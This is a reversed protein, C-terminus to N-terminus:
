AYGLRRLEDGCIQEIDTVQATSLTHRWRGPPTAKPIAQVPLDLFESLARATGGPDRAMEEYRVTKLQEQPMSHRLRAALRIAWRWRLACKGADSLTPWVDRENEDEVGFFPHPCEEDLNVFSPRFWALISPDALMATVVDRGDRIVQVIQADPFAEVLTDACYALDASADGYRSLGRASACPGIDGVKLGAAARCEPGCELCSAASLQWGQAFADRLVAATASGRGAFQSPRRAFAYVAHLVSRQGITVHFGDSGKLARGISEAGSHPAGVVFVPRTVKRANVILIHRSAVM